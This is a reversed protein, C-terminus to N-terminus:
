QFKPTVPLGRMIPVHQEARWPGAIPAPNYVAFDDGPPRLRERGVFNTAPQVNQAKYNYLSSRYRKDTAGFEPGPKQHRYFSVAAKTDITSHQADM